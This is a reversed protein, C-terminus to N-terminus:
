VILLLRWEKCNSDRFEGVGAQSIKSLLEQFNQAKFGRHEGWNRRLKSVNIWGSEDTYEKAKEDWIYDILEIAVDGAIALVKALKEGVEDLSQDDNRTPAISEEVQASPLLQYQREIQRIEAEEAFGFEAAKVMSRKMFQQRKVKAEFALEDGTNVVVIFCSIALGFCVLQLFNNVKLSLPIIWLAFGTLILAWARAQMSLEFAGM